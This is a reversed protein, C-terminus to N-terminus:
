KFRKGRVLPNLDRAKINPLDIEPIESCKITKFKLLDKKFNKNDIGDFIKYLKDETIIFLDEYKIIKNKIVYETLNGLLDMMYNDEKSHCIIDINKSEDVVRKAIERSDFGLELKKDENQYVALNDTFDKIDRLSLNKTWLAGTLIVGDFRDACLRPRDNDVISYKKFNIIDEIDIKDERLLKKLMKDSKLITETFEETSEQKSYDKNMYDIVHSFCPTAVDHFLGALTAKKDKTYKYTIRAVNLSHDYRTVYEKFDYVDKSANDMGCFYGIKKLRKLSPCNLYKKLFFPIKGLLKSYYDMYM